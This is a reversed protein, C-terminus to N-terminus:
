ANKLSVLQTSLEVMKINVENLSHLYKEIIDSDSSNDAIIRRFLNKEQILDNVTTELVEIVKIYEAHSFQRDKSKHKYEERIQELEIKKSKLDRECNIIVRKTEEKEHIKVRVTQEKYKFIKANVEVKVQETRQKEISVAAICQSITSITDLATNICDTVAAVPSAANALSQGINCGRQTPQDYQLVTPMVEVQSASVDGAGSEKFKSYNMKAM